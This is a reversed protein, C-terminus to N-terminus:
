LKALICEAIRRMGTDGPHLAVGPHSFLGIAKNEDSDGLFALPVYVAGAADAAKRIEAELPEHRWFLGTVVIRIKRGASFFRLMKELAAAYSETGLRSLDVNEGIRALLIDPAFARAAAYRDLISEDWFNREWDALQAVAYAVSGYKKGLAAAVIHVYDHEPASAAMGHNGYWGIDPKAAHYTISNGVFLIKKEADPRGTIFVKGDAATQDAAPVNNDAIDRSIAEKM